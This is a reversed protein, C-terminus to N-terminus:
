CVETNQSSNYTSSLPLKLHKTKLKTDKDCAMLNNMDKNIEVDINENSFLASIHNVDKESKVSSM